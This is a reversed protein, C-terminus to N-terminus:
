KGIILARGHGLVLSEGALHDLQPALVLLEAGLQGCSAGPTSRRHGRSCL